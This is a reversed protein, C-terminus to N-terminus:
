KERGHRGHRGLRTSLIPLITFALGQISCPADMSFGAALAAGFSWWSCWEWMRGAFGLRWRKELAKEIRGRCGMKTGQTREARKWGASVREGCCFRGGARIWGCGALGGGARRGSRSCFGGM